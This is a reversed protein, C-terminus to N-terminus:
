TTLEESITLRRSSARRWAAAFNFSALCSFARRSRAKSGRTLGHKAGVQGCAKHEAEGTTCMTGIGGIEVVMTTWWDDEVVGKPQKM